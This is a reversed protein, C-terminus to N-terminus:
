WVESLWFENGDPDLFRCETGWDHVTPKVSFKVGKKKLAAYVKDIKEDTVFMIGTNGKEPRKAECLHLRMGTKEAGVTLWHGMDDIVKLGLKQTYFKRAAKLDKVVVAASSPVLKM